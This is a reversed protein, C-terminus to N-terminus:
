KESDAIFQNLDNLCCNLPTDRGDHVTKYWNITCRVTQDFDWSPKWGLEHHARDTVLNLLRAEHPQDANSIDKYSGPWHHLVSQVLSEVTRNAELNPGFNFETSFEKSDTLAEALCIYGSLPELVHQWPRTSLPNRVKIEQGSSLARIADPVIRDEAWDGGGIVNGARASAIRLYINQHQDSGCFSSRWSAVAIEAASKSSSYPDKGGLEDNERYGYVWEKNKYVKDTTVIVAACPKSLSRLSELLNVTGMVNTQWTERPSLYSQRVLPQAALHFVVEPSFERIVSDLLQYNCINGTIHTIQNELDLQQFLSPCPLLDLSMGTVNAGANHLWLSLWSGKFGTHGTILVRKNRWFGTNYNM